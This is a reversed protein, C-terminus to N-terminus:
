RGRQKSVGTLRSLNRTVRKRHDQFPERQGARYQTRRARRLCSSIWKRLTSTRSCNVKGFAAASTTIGSKESLRQHAGYIPSEVYAQMAGPSSSPGGAGIGGLCSDGGRHSDGTNGNGQRAGSIALPAPVANGGRPSGACDRHRFLITFVRSGKGRPQEQDVPDMQVGGEM